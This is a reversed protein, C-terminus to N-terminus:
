RLCKQFLKPTCIPLGTDVEPFLKGRDSGGSIVDVPKRNVFVKTVVRGGFTETSRKFDSNVLSVFCDCKSKKKRNCTKDKVRFYVGLDVSLHGRSTM